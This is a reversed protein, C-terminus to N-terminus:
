PGTPDLTVVDPAFRHLAELSRRQWQLHPQSVFHVDYRGEAPVKAVSDIWTVFCKFCSSNMFDLASLDFIVTRVRTRSVEGHLRKLFVDLPATADMDATGSFRIIVTEPAEGEENLLLSFGDKVVPAITFRGM